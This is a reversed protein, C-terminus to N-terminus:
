VKLESIIAGTKWGVNLTADLLDTYVHDGIYMVRSEEWGTMAHLQNM